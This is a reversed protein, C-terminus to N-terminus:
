SLSKGELVDAILAGAGKSSLHAPPLTLQGTARERMARDYMEEFQKRGWVDMDASSMQGLRKGGGMLQIARRAVPDTHDGRSCAALRKTEGWAAAARDKSSGKILELLAGLSPMWDPHNEHATRFAARVREPDLDRCGKWYESISLLWMEPDTVPNQYRARLRSMMETFETETLRESM